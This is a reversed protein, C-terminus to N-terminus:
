ALEKKRKDKAEKLIAYSNMDKADLAITGAREFASKLGALTECREIEGVQEAVWESTLGGGAGDDDKGKPAIGLAAFLTYRELYYKTSGIAMIANKSGTTDPPGGLTTRESHGMRHTIVCSVTVWDKTNEPSEWRHTFGYQILAKILIPCAKDLEAHWYNPRGSGQDVHKTKLITPMNAKLRAMDENFAKRAENAEWELNMRWLEALTAVDVKERSARDIIDLLTPRQVVLEEAM